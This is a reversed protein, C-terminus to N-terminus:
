DSNTLFEDKIEREKVSKGPSGGGSQVSMSGFFEPVPGILMMLTICVAGGLTLAVLISGLLRSRSYALLLAHFWTVGGLIAGVVWPIWNPGAVGFWYEVWVTVPAPLKAAQDPWFALITAIAGVVTVVSLLVAYVLRLPARTLRVVEARKLLWGPGGRWFGLVLAWLCWYWEALRLWGLHYVEPRLFTFVLYAGGCVLSCALFVFLPFPKVPAGRRETAAPTSSSVSLDVM